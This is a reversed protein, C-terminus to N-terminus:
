KPRVHSTFNHDGRNSKLGGNPEVTYHQLNDNLVVDDVEFDDNKEILQLQLSTLRNSTIYGRYKNILINNYLNIINTFIVM